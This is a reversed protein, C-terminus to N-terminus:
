SSLVRYSSLADFRTSTDYPVFVDQRLKVLILYSVDSVARRHCHVATVHGAPAVATIISHEQVHAFVQALMM